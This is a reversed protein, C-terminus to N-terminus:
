SHTQKWDRCLRFAAWETEVENYGGGKRYQRLHTAEHATVSVLAQKWDEVEWTGPSDRRDYVHTTAPYLEAVGIRCVLLQDISRPVSPTIEVFDKRSDNWIYGSASHPNSYFRGAYAHQGRHMKVKVMVRSGDLDLQRFVWRIIGAVIRGDYRTENAIEPRKVVAGGAARVTSRRGDLAGEAEIDPM